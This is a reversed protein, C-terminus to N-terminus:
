YDLLNFYELLGGSGYFGGDITNLHFEMSAEYRSTIENCITIFKSYQPRLISSAEYKGEYGEKHFSGCFILTKANPLLICFLRLGTDIGRPPLAVIYNCGLNLTSEDRFLDSRFYDPKVIRGNRLREAQEKITDFEDDRQFAENTIFKAYESLTSGTQYFDYVKGRLSQNVLSLIV